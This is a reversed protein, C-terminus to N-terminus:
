KGKRMMEKVTFIKPSLPKNYLVKKEIWVSAHNTKYDIWTTGVHLPVGADVNESDFKPNGLSHLLTRWHNGDDDYIFVYLIYFTQRDIYFRRKGYPHDSDRPTAEVIVVKRLEWPVM